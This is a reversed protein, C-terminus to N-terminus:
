IGVHLFASDLGTWHPKHRHISTALASSCSSVSCLQVPALRLGFLLYGWSVVPDSIYYHRNWRQQNLEPYRSSPARDFVFTRNSSFQRFQLSPVLWCRARLRSNREVKNTTHAALPCMLTSEVSAKIPCSWTWVQLSHRIQDNYLWFETKEIM